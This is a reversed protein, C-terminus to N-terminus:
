RWKRGPHLQPRVFLKEEDLRLPKGRVVHHDADRRPLLLHRQRLRIEAVVGPAKWKRGHGGRLRPRDLIMEQAAGDGDCCVSRFLTTYPLLTSRPPRRIM